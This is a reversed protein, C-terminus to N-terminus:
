GQQWHLLQGHLRGAPPLSALTYYLCQRRELPEAHMTTRPASPDVVQLGAQLTRRFQNM